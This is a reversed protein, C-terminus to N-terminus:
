MVQYMVAASTRVKRPTIRPLGITASPGIRIGEQIVAVLYELKEVNAIMIEAEGEFTSRVEAVVRSLAGSNQLLQTFIM